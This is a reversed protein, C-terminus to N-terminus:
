DVSEASAANKKEHINVHNSEPNTCIQRNDNADDKKKRLTYFEELESETSNIKDFNKYFDEVSPVISKKINKRIFKRGKLKLQNFVENFSFIKGEIEVSCHEPNSHITYIKGM